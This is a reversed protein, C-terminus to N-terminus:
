EREDIYQLFIEEQVDGRAGMDVLALAHVMANVEVIALAVTEM